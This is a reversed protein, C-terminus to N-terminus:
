EFSWTIEALQTRKIHESEVYDRYEKNSLYDDWPFSYFVEGPLGYFALKMPSVAGYKRALELVRLRVPRGKDSPNLEQLYKKYTDGLRKNEDYSEQRVVADFNVRQTFSLEHGSSSLQAGIANEKNALKSYALEFEGNPSACSNFFLSVLLVSYHLKITSM